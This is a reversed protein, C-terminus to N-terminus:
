SSAQSNSSSDVVTFLLPSASDAKKKAEFMDEWGVLISVPLPITRITPDSGSTARVAISDGHAFPDSVITFHEGYFSM